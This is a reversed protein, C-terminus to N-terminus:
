RDDDGEAGLCRGEFVLEAEGTLFIKKRDRWEVALDGGESSVTVRETTMGALIGAIAAACSGSGSSLTPGVGREWFSVRIRDPGLIEVWEVNTRNPFAEHGSILSSWRPWDAEEAVRGFIVCHPNGISLATVPFIRGEVALPYGLAKELREATRMPIRDPEFAPCGMDAEFRFRNGRRELRRFTKEGSSTRIRIEESRHPELFGIGAAACRLGNGSVEAEGGDPNFIRAEWGSPSSGEGRSLFVIGDSGVGFHRDCMRAARAGLGAASMGSAGTMAVLYDNGNAQAKLFRM